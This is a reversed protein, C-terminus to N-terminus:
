HQILMKRRLRNLLSRLCYWRRLRSSRATRGHAVEGGISWWARADLGVGHRLSRQHNGLFSLQFSLRSQTKFSLLPLLLLLLLLLGHLALTMELHLLLGLNSTDVLVLRICVGRHVVVVVVGRM